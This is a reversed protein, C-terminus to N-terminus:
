QGDRGGSSAQTANGTFEVTNLIPNSSTNNFIGGGGDQATNTYVRVNTLTPSSGGLYVGGGLFSNNQVTINTLM